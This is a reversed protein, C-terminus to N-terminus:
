LEHHHPCRLVGYDEDPIATGPSHPVPAHLTIASCCTMLVYYSGTLLTKLHLSFCLPKLLRECRLRGLKRASVTEHELVGSKM